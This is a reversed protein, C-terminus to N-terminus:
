KPNSESPCQISWCCNHWTFCAGLDHLRLLGKDTNQQQKRKRVGRTCQTLFCFCVFPKIAGRGESCTGAVLSMTDWDLMGKPMTM